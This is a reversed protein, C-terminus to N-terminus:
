RRLRRAALLRAPKGALRNYILDALSELDLHVKADFYDIRLVGKYDKKKTPKGVTRPDILPKYFLRGPIKTIGQWYKELAGVNQDARCQVTARVKEIKFDFCRKLMELFLVIIRPDSNGLSFSRRKQSYKSAEGLCLMSLAIKAINNDTIQKSIPGNLQTLRNFFQHRRKRNAEWASEIAARNLRKIKETYDPPLVIGRCFDALTSKSFNIGVERKIETYTRGLLRLKRVAEHIELSYRRM